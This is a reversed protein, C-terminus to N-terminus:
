IEKAARGDAARLTLLVDGQGFPRRERVDGLVVLFVEDLSSNGSTFFSSTFTVTSFPTSVRGTFAFEFLLLLVLLIVSDLTCVAAKHPAKRQGIIGIRFFHLSLEFIAHEGYM